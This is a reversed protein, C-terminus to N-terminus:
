KVNYALNGLAPLLQLCAVLQRWLCLYTNRVRIILCCLSHILALHIDNFSTLLAITEAIIIIVAIQLLRIDVTIFFIIINVLTSSSNDTLAVQRIKTAFSILWRFLNSFFNCLGLPYFLHCGTLVTKVKIVLIIRLRRFIM